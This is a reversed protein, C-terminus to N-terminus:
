MTELKMSKGGTSTSTERNFYCLFQVNQLWIAFILGSNHHLKLRWYNWQGWLSIQWLLLQIVVLLQVFLSTIMQDDAFDDDATCQEYTLYSICSWSAISQTNNSDIVFVHIRDMIVHLSLWDLPSLMQLSLISRPKFWFMKNRTLHLHQQLTDISKTTALKLRRIPFDSPRSM